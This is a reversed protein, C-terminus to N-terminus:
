RMIAYSCTCVHRRFNNQVCVLDCLNDTDDVVIIAKSIYYVNPSGQIRITNFPEYKFGTIISITLSIRKFHIRVYKRNSRYTYCCNHMGTLM